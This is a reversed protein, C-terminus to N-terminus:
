ESRLAVLPDVSTASRSAITSAAAGILLLIAGSIVSITLSADQLEPLLAALGSRAAASLAIGAITGAAIARM